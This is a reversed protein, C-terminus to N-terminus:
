GGSADFAISVTLCGYVCSGFTYIFLTTRSEFLMHLLIFDPVRLKM